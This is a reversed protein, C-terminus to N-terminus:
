RLDNLLNSLVRLRSERDDLKFWCGRSNLGKPKYKLLTPYILFLNIEYWRLPYSCNKKNLMYLHYALKSQLTGSNDRIWSHTLIIADVRMQWSLSKLLLDREKEFGLTFM